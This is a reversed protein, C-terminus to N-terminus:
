FHRSGSLFLIGIVEDRTLFSSSIKRQFCFFLFLVRRSKNEVQVETVTTIANSADRIMADTPPAYSRGAPFTLAKMAWGVPRVPFNRAVGLLSEQANPV